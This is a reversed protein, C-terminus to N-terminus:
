RQWTEVHKSRCEVTIGANNNAFAHKMMREFEKCEGMTRYIAPRDRPYVNCSEWPQGVSTCMILAFITM